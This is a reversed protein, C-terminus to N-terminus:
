SSSVDVLPVVQVAARSLVAIGLRAEARLTLLNQTPLDRFVEITTAQRALLLVHAADLVFGGFRPVASSTVVPLGWLNPAVPASATGMVYGTTSRESRIAHWDAPHLAILSAAFGTAELHAAAEGLRDAAHTATPVFATGLEELGSIIDGGSNSGTVILREAKQAVGHGLLLGLQQMLMPEDALVQESARVWHAVTGINATRKITPVNAEPKLEAEPVEDAANTYGSLEIYDVSGAEVVMTPLAQLLSPARYGVGWLGGIRGPQTPYENADSSAGGGASVIISRTLSPLSEPIVAAAQRMKRSTVAAIADQLDHVHESLANRHTAPLCSRANDIMALRQEAAQLNASLDAIRSDQESQRTAVSELKQAASSITQLNIDM